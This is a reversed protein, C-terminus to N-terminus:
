ALTASAQDALEPTPADVVVLIGQEAFRDIYDWARAVWPLDRPFLEKIDTALRFHTAAYVACVCSLVLALAIVFPARRTCFDVLRPIPSTPMDAQRHAAAFR